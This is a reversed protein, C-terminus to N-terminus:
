SLMFEQYAKFQNAYASVTTADGILKLAKSAYGLGRIANVGAPSAGDKYKNYLSQGMGNMARSVIKAGAATRLMKRSKKQEDYYKDISEISKGPYKKQLRAARKESKIDAKAKKYDSKAKAAAKNYENEAAEERAQDKKSLMQGRKYGKEISGISKEYKAFASDKANRYDQKAQRKKGAPTLSGDKNQYRRVGWRMGKIGHHYLVYDSM